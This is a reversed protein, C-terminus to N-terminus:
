ACQLAPLCTPLRGLPPVGAGMGGLESVVDDLAGGDSYTGDAAYVLQGVLHPKLRVLGMASLGTFSTGDQIISLFCGHPPLLFFFVYLSRTHHTKTGLDGESDSYRRRGLYLCARFVSPLSLILFVELELGDSWVPKKATAEVDQAKNKKKSAGAGMGLNEESGNAVLQLGRVTDALVSTENGPAL